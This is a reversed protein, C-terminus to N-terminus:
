DGQKQYAMFQELRDLAQQMDDAFSRHALLFDEKGKSIQAYLDKNMGEVYSCIAYEIDDRQGEDSSYSYVRWKQHFFCYASEISDKTIM